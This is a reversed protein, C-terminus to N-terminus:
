DLFSILRRQRAHHLSHLCRRDRSGSQFESRLYQAQARPEPIAPWEGHRQAHELVSRRRNPLTCDFLLLPTGPVELEKLVDITTMTRTPEGNRHRMVSQQDLRDSLLAPETRDRNSLTLRLFVAHEFLRRRPRHDEQVTGSRATSGSSRWVRRSPRRRAIASRLRHWGASGLPRRRSDSADMYRRHNGGNSSVQGAATVVLQITEPVNSRLYVSYCYVFSSPGSINQIIQQTTQATNTLQMAASGGLPDQVGSSVQLLPDPTWVAQTWDESWMLLNDTPDLFTFTNLQGQSAEFLSEISLREGDTLDSYALRWQM